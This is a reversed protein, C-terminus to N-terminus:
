SVTTELVYSLKPQLPVEIVFETGQPSSNCLIQGGHKEVVIQYSISLGLGTGKGVPKTTFFPEFLKDRVEKSMGPGNDSIAIAVSEATQRPSIVNQNLVKTCICITKQCCKLGKLIQTTNYEELADIANTLINMFVQNMQGGYCEVLPLDGYNKILQIGPNTGNAKLRHQLILLTSDLGEHIDFPKMKADDIRSFNRMSLVISCIREAGMNLSSLLKPLDERIFDLDIDEIEWTIEPTPQPYFQQYLNILHMLDQIYQNLYDINGNIFNVPNNIEHAIGAVLQGLASMKETKVIQTQAQQLEQLAKELQTAQQRLQAESQRLEQETEWRKKIEQKLSANVSKLKATREKVRKELKSALQYLAKEAQQRQTIENNLALNTVELQAPSPLALALPILALLLLTASVSVLLTLAKMLDSLWYSHPYWLKWSEIVYATGCAIFFGGFILFMWHFPVDRGKYLSYVLMTPIAYYAVTIAVRLWDWNITGANDLFLNELLGVIM